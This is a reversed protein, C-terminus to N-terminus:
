IILVGQGFADLALNIEMINFIKNEVFYRVVLDFKSSFSLTFGAKGILDLMDDLELGLAVALAIATNKSPKYDSDSRIKSFLRRDIFARKYVESDTLGKQDILRLVSQSFTEERAKILSELTRPATRQASLPLKLVEQEEELILEDHEELIEFSEASRCIEYDAFCFDITDASVFKDDIYQEIKVFLNQSIKM